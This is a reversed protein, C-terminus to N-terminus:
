RAAGNALWEAYQAHTGSGYAVVGGSRAAAEIDALTPEPLSNIQAVPSDNIM